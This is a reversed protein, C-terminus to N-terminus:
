HSILIGFILTMIDKSVFFFIKVIWDAIFIFFHDRSKPVWIMTM